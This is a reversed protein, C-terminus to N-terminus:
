EWITQIEIIASLPGSITLIESGLITNGNSGKSVHKLTGGNVTGLLHSMVEIKKKLNGYPM